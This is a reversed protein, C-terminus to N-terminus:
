VREREREREEVREIEFHSSLFLAANIVVRIRLAVLTSFNTLTHSTTRNNHFPLLSLISLFNQIQRKQHTHAIVKTLFEDENTAVFFKERRAFILRWFLRLLSSFKILNLKELLSLLSIENEESKNETTIGSFFVDVLYRTLTCSCWSFLGVKLSFFFFVKKLLREFDSKRKQRAYFFLFYHAARLRSRTRRLM